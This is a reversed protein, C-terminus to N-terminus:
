PEGALDAIANGLDGIDRGIGHLTNCGYLVLILYVLVLLYAAKRIM